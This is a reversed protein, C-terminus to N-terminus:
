QADEAASELLEGIAVMHEQDDLSAFHGHARELAERQVDTLALGFGRLAAELVQQVGYHVMFRQDARMAGVTFDAAQDIMQATPKM